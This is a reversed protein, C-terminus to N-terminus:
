IRGKIKEGAFNSKKESMLPSRFVTKDIKIKVPLRFGTLVGFLFRQLTVVSKEIEL